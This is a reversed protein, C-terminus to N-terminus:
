KFPEQSTGWKFATRVFVKGTNPINSEKTEGGIAFNLYLNSALKYDAGFSAQISNSSTRGAYREGRYVGEFNVSWKPVGVRLRAGFLNSDKTTFMGELLPNPVTEKVRRRFHFILQPTICRNEEDALEVETCRFGPIGEFGYALSTWLGQGNNTFKSSEGSTSIWSGAVGVGFSSKGFNRKKAAEACKNYETLYVESLLVKQRAFVLRAVTPNPFPDDPGLNFESKAQADLRDDLDTYCSTLKTDLSPDGLDFFTMNLGAGIRASKDEDTTGKTTALSFQTRSLFRTIYGKYSKDRYDKITVSDGFFLLYPATDIAIGSQFNGNRDVSNIIATAFERPTAPRTVEQPTLGLITFGPSEPISMDLAEEKSEEMAKAIQEDSAKPILNPTPTPAPTSQTVGSSNGSTSGSTTSDFSFLTITFGTLSAECAGKRNIITGDKKLVFPFIINNDELEGEVSTGNVEPKLSAPVVVEYFTSNGIANFRTVCVPINAPPSKFIIRASTSQGSVSLVFLGLYLFFYLISIKTKM